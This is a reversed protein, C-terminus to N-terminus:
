PPKGSTRPVVRWREIAEEEEFHLTPAPVVLAHLPPGFDVRALAERPGWWARATESGVRAVVALELSTPFRPRDPDDRDTLIGMAVDPALYRAATPDLDLLVLTHLGSDRNREIGELPSVPAFGPAPFPLSVTRGFRYHMLGLLSPVATLVTAGPLYTWSHGRRECEVRLAVHTTAVFPDGVVLLAVDGGSALASWVPSGEELSARPLMDVRVSLDRALRDLSGPALRSTYEEAFVHSSSRILDRARLSLDREDGLGLGIFRLLGM